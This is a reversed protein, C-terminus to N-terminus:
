FPQHDGATVPQPAIPRAARGTPAAKRPRATLHDVRPWGSESQIITALCMRGVLDGAEFSQGIAPPQGDLLATLFGYMKSKPGSATSTTATIVTDDELAFQWELIEFDTGANPGTKATITKPGEIATLTVEYTGPEIDPGGANVTLLPMHEEKHQPKTTPQTEKPPTEQKPQPNAALARECESCRRGSDTATAFEAVAASWIRRCLSMPRHADDSSITWAHSVSGAPAAWIPTM